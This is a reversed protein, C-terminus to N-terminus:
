NVTKAPKDDGRWSEPMTGSKILEEINHCTLMGVMGFFMNSVEDRKEPETGAFYSAVLAALIPGVIGAPKGDLLQHLAVKVEDHLKMTQEAWERQEKSLTVM